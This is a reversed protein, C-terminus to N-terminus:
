EQCIHAGRVLRFRHNRRRTEESPSRQRDDIRKFDFRNRNRLREISKAIRRKPM